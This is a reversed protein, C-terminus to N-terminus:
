ELFPFRENLIKTKATEYDLDNCILWIMEQTWTTGTRPLTAIIVDDARIEFNHITEAYDIYSAPMFWKESGIQVFGEKQGTFVKATNNHIMGKIKRITYPFGVSSNQSVVTQM